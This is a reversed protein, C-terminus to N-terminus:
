FGEVAKDLRRVKVGMVPIWHACSIVIESTRGERLGSGGCCACDRDAYGGGAYDFYGTSWVGTGGCYDCATTPRKSDTLLVFSKFNAIVPYDPHYHKWFHTTM